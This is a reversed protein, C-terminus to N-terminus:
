LTWGEIDNDKKFKNWDLSTKNLVTMKPRKTLRNVLSNLKSVPRNRKTGPVASDQTDCTSTSSGESKVEEEARSLIPASERRRKRYVTCLM